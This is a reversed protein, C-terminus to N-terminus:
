ARFKPVPNNNGPFGICYELTSCSWIDLRLWVETEERESHNNQYKRDENGDKKDHNSLFSNWKNPEGIDDCNM